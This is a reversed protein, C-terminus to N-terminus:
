PSQWALRRRRLRTSTAHRYTPRSASLQPLGDGRVTQVSPPQARRGEDHVTVAWAAAGLALGLLLAPGSLREAPM